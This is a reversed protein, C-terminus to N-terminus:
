LAFCDEMRICLQHLDLLEARHIRKVDITVRHRIDSYPIYFYCHSVNRRSTVMLVENVTVLKCGRRSSSPSLFHRSFIHENEVTAERILAFLLIIYHAFTVCVLVSYSM